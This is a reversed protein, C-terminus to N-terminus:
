ANMTYVVFVKWISLVKLLLGYIRCVTHDPIVCFFSFPFFYPLPSSSAPLFASPIVVKLTFLLHHYHGQGSRAWNAVNRYKYADIVVMGGLDRRRDHMQYHSRVRLQKIRSVVTRPLRIWLWVEGCLGWGRGGGAVGLGLRCLALSNVVSPPLHFTTRLSPVEPELPDLQVSWHSSPNPALNSYWCSFHWLGWLSLAWM